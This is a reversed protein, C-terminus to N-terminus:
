KKYLLIQVVTWGLSNFFVGESLFIICNGGWFHAFNRSILSGLFYFNPLCVNVTIDVRTFYPLYNPAKLYKFIRQFKFLKKLVKFHKKIINVM